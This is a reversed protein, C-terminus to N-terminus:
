TYEVTINFTRIEMPKLEVVFPAKMKLVPRPKHHSDTATGISSTQTNWKLRHIDSLVANGGLGLEVAGVVKM